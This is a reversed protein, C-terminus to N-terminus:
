FLSCRSILIQRLLDTIHTLRAKIVHLRLLLLYWSTLLRPDTATEKQNMWKMVHSCCTFLASFGAFRLKSSLRTDVSPEPWYTMMSRMVWIGVSYVSIMQLFSLFCSEWLCLFLWLSIYHINCGAPLFSFFFNGPIDLFLLLLNLM